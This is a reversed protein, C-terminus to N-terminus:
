GTIPCRCIRAPDRQSAARSKSVRHCRPLVIRQWFGPLSHFGSQHPVAQDRQGASTLLKFSRNSPPVPCIVKIGGFPSIFTSTWLPPVPLISEGSPEDLGATRHVPILTNILRIAKLIGLILDRDDNFIDPGSINHNFLENKLFWLSGSFSIPCSKRSRSFPM